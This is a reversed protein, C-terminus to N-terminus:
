PIERRHLLGPTHVYGCVSCRENRGVVNHDCRWCWFRGKTPMRRKLRNLKRTPEEIFRSM